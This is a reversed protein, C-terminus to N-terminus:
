SSVPNLWSTCYLQYVAAPASGFCEPFARSRQKTHALVHVNVSKKPDYPKGFQLPQMGFLVDQVSSNPVLVRVTLGRACYFFTCDTSIVPRTCM